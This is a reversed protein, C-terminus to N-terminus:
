MYSPLPAEISFTDRDSQGHALSDPVTKILLQHPLPIVNHTTGGLCIIRTTYSLLRLLCHLALWGTPLMGRYNKSWNQRWTGKRVKWCHLTVQSVYSSTLGKRGLTGKSVPNRVTTPVTVLVHLVSPLCWLSESHSLTVAIAKAKEVPKPSMGFCHHLSFGPICTTHCFLEVTALM